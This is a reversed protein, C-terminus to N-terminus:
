PYILPSFFLIKYSTFAGSPAFKCVVALYKPADCRVGSWRGERDMFACSSSKGLCLFGEKLIVFNQKKLPLSLILTSLIIILKM